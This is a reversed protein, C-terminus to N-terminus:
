TLPRTRIPQCSKGVVVRGAVCKTGESLSDSKTFSEIPCGRFHTLRPKAGSPPHRTMKFTDIAVFLKPEIARMIFDSFDGYMVGAEAITGGRLRPAFYRILENRQAFLKANEVHCQELESYKLLKDPHASAPTHRQLFRGAFKSMLRQMTRDIKM